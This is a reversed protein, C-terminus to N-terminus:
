ASEYFQSFYRTFQNHRDTREDTWGDMQLGKYM